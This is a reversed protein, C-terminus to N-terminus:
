DVHTDTTIPVCSALHCRRVTRAPSLHPALTHTHKKRNQFLPYNTPLVTWLFSLFVRPRRESSVFFCFPPHAKVGAARRLQQTLKPQHTPNLPHESTTVRHM